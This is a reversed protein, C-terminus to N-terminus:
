RDQVGRKVGRPAGGTAAAGEEDFFRAVLELGVGLTACVAERQETSLAAISWHAAQAIQTLHTLQQADLQQRVPV